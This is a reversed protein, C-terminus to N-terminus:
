VLHLRFRLHLSHERHLFSDEEPNVMIIVEL